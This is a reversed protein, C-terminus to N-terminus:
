FWHIQIFHDNHTAFVNMPQLQNKRLLAKHAHLTTIIRTKYEILYAGKEPKAYARAHDINSFWWTQDPLEAWLRQALTKTQIPNFRTLGAAALEMFFPVSSHQQTIFEYQLSKFTTTPLMSSTFGIVHCLEVARAKRGLLHLHREIWKSSIAHVKHRLVIYWQVVNHLNARVSCGLNTTYLNASDATIQGSMPIGITQLTAFELGYGQIAAVFLEKGLRAHNFAMEAWNRGWTAVDDPNTTAWQAGYAREAPTSFGGGTIQGSEFVSKVEDGDMVRYLTVPSIFRGIRIPTQHIAIAAKTAAEDIEIIIRAM